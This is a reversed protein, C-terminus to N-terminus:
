LLLHQSLSRYDRPPLALLLLLYAQSPWRSRSKTRANSLTRSVSRLIWDSLGVAEAHLCLPRWRWRHQNTMTYLRNVSQVDTCRTCLWYSIPLLAAPLWKRHCHNLDMSIKVSGSSWGRVDTLQWTLVIYSLLLWPRAGHFSKLKFTRHWADRVDRKRCFCLVLVRVSRKLCLASLGKIENMRTM